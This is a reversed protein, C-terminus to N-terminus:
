CPGVGSSAPMTRRRESAHARSHSRLGANRALRVLRPLTDPGPRRCAAPLAAARAFEAARTAREGSRPLSIRRMRAIREAVRTLLRFPREHYPTSPACIWATETAADWYELRGEFRDIEARPLRVPKCGPFAPPQARRTQAAAQRRTPPAETSAM